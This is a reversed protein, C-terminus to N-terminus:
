ILIELVNMNIRKREKKSRKRKINENVKLDTTTQYNVPKTNYDNIKAKFNPGAIKFSKKVVTANIILKQILPKLSINSIWCRDRLGISQPLYDLLKVIVNIVGNEIYGEYNLVNFFINNLRIGITDNKQITYKYKNFM